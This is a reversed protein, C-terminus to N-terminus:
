GLKIAVIYTAALMFCFAVNPQNLNGQSLRSEAYSAVIFLTTGKCFFYLARLKPHLTGLLRLALNTFTAHVDSFNKSFIVSNQV